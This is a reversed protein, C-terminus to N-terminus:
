VRKRRTPYSSSLKDAEAKIRAQRLSALARMGQLQSGPPVESARRTDGQSENFNRQTERVGALRMAAGLPPLDAASAGLGTSAVTSTLSTFPSFSSSYTVRIQRGPWAPEYLMIAFGSTFADTDMNRKLQWSRLEPWLKSPGPIDYRIRLVDIVDTAGTLDYGQIAPNYTLDVEVLRFLGNTPACLDALDNNLESFITFPAFKSNVYAVAGDAHTAATSGLAARQVEATKATPNTSWVYVIELDVAVYSGETLPGLDRAFTFTTTSNNHAGSLQNLQERQGAFLYRQTTAILDAATTM